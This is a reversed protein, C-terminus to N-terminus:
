VGLGNCVADLFLLCVHVCVCVCVHVRACMRAYLTDHRCAGARQMHVFCAVTEVVAGVRVGLQMVAAYATASPPAALKDGDWHGMEMERLIARATTFSDSPPPLKWVSAQTIQHYYYVKGTSGTAAQWMDISFRLAELVCEGMQGVRVAYFIGAIDTGSM